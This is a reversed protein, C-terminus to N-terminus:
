NFRLRLTRDVDLPSKKVRISFRWDGSMGFYEKLTYKGNGQGEATKFFGM